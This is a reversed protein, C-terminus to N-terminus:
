TRASSKSHGAYTLWRERVSLRSVAHLLCPVFQCLTLGILLSIAPALTGASGVLVVTCSTVFVVTLVTTLAQFRLGRSDTLYMGSALHLAQVLVVGGLLWYLAWPVHVANGVALRSVFPGAVVLGAFGGLGIVAGTTLGIAFRRTSSHHNARDHAYEGWLSRGAVQAISFVPLFAIMAASYVAVDELSARWSLILRGGQIAFPMALAIVLMPGASGFLAPRTQVPRRLNPRIGRARLSAIAMALALWSAIPIGITSIAIISQLNLQLSAAIVVLGSLIPAVGQLLIALPNRKLGILIAYGISAPMTMLFVSLALCVGWNMGLVQDVGLIPPWLQLLGILNIVLLGIACGGLLYKGSARLIAVFKEAESPLGAAANTVAAGLGLDIVPLLLPLSVVLSFVAYAEVGYTGTITRALVISTVGTLPLIAVRAAASVVASRASPSRWVSTDTHNKSDSRVATM